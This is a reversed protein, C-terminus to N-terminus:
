KTPTVDLVITSPPLDSDYVPPGWTFGPAAPGTYVQLALGFSEDAYPYTQGVQAWPGNTWNRPTAYGEPGYLLSGLRTVTTNSLAAVQAFSVNPHDLFLQLLMPETGLLLAVRRVVAKPVPSPSM